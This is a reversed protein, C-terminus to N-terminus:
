VRAEAWGAGWGGRERGWTARAGVRVGGFAWVAGVGLQASGM